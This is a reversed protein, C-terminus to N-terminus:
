FISDYDYSGFFELEGELIDKYNEETILGKKEHIWILIESNIESIYHETDKYNDFDCILNYYNVYSYLNINECTLLLETAIEEAQIQAELGGSRVVNDWYLISYPTYFLEFTVSPNENALQVINETINETILQIQEETLAGTGEMIEDSRQYHEMVTEKGSGLEWAGYEDLTTTSQGTLTWVMNTIVGHYFISKNLLYWVDNIPNDDYLYTPYETYALWDSERVFGNYDIGWIVRDIEENEDFGRQLSQSIEMFGGGSFPVKITEEGTLTKWESPKFNQTMSSGTIIAEYEFNKLIGDNMYREENIRYSFAALPARYHFYPDVAFMILAMCGLGVIGAILFRFFWKKEQM